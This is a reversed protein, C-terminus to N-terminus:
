TAQGPVLAKQPVPLGRPPFLCRGSNLGTFLHLAFKQLSFEDLGTTKSLSSANPTTLSSQFTPCSVQLCHFVPMESGRGPTGRSIM